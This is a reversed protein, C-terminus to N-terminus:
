RIESGSLVKKGGPFREHNAKPQVQPGKPALWPPRGTSMKSTFAAIGWGVYRLRDHGQGTNSRLVAKTAGCSQAHPSWRAFEVRPKRTRSASAVCPCEGLITHM